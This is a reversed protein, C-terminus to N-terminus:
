VIGKFELPVQATVHHCSRRTDITILSQLELGVQATWVSKYRIGTTKITSQRKNKLYAIIPDLPWSLRQFNFYLINYSTKAQGLWNIIKKKKKKKKINM